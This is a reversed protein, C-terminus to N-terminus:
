LIAGTPLIRPTLLVITETRQSQDTQSGGFLWPLFGQKSQWHRKGSKLGSILLTQENGVLSKMFFKKRTTQPTQITTEGSTIEEIGLLDSLSTSVQLLVQQNSIKPLVFLEFGTRVVGPILLDSSGVNATSSSGASALYTVNEELVVKSIQNNISVMRPHNNVEVVGQQRLASLLVESGAYRGSNRTISLGQQEGIFQNLGNQFLNLVQEGGTAEYVLSWDIGTQNDNTFTVDIVQIDIAVQRTLRENQQLLYERVLQVHQPLDRVLVSTSSQNISLSGDESLLLTLAHELDEWVSLAESTFNLYQASDDNVGAGSVVVQNGSTNNTSSSSSDDEGLFFNTVGALFAVDFEAIEYQRWTVLRDEAVYSFGTMLGIQQLAEGVTGEHRLSIPTTVDIDDLLRVSVGEPALLDNLARGLPYGDFVFQVPLGMWSPGEREPLNLPPVFYGQARVVNATEPASSQTARAQAIRQSSESAAEQYSDGLQACGVLSMVGFILIFVYRM